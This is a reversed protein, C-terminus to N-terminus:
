KVLRYHWAYPGSNNGPCSGITNNSTLRIDHGAEVAIGNVGGGGATMEFDGAVVARLGNIDGGAALSASAASYIEIGGGPACGDATGLDAGGALHIAAMDLPKQGNGTAISALVVDEVQGMDDGHIRCESYVVLKEFVPQVEIDPLVLQEQPSACEVYYVHHAQYPGPFDPGIVQFTPPVPNGDADTDYIAAPVETYLGDAGPILGEFIEDLRDVDKPWLDGEILASDLGTNSDIKAKLDDLDGMSVQVGSEFRNNNQTTVGANQGHICVENIFENNGGIKVNNLAVLGSGMCGPIFKIAIAETAINWCPDVGILSLIRLFNMGVPNGNQDARRTVVWVANPETGGTSFSRSDQDWTGIVVEPALLVNGNHSPSMNGAAFDLAQVVADAEDPLSMVAALAAADATSQLSTRNRYADTVDVALGGIAVYLMFWILSWVTYGGRDDRLFARLNKFSM